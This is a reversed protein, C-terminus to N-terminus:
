RHILILVRLYNGPLGIETLSVRLETGHRIYPPIRILVEKESEVSGYGSCISCSADGWMGMSRCQPCPEVVPLQIPFLGGQAAEWPSLVAEYCFDSAPMWRKGPEPFHPSMGEFLAQILPEPFRRDKRNPPPRDGETTQIPRDKRNGAHQGTWEEDYKKRKSQNSLIDYAEKVERFRETSKPNGTKDPHYRKMGSRYAEKIKEADANRQIGLIVYYDKKM